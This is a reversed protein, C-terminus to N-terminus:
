APAVAFFERVAEKYRKDGVATLHDRGDLKVVRSGPIFKALNAASGVLTDDSGIVMLVPTRLKALFGLDVHPRAADMCAALAKLDNRNLEAFDRFLRGQESKVSNKEDALLADVIAKRRSTDGMSGGDGIGGLVVARLRESHSMLLQACIRGGMSYGMLLTRRIGLHDLLRVVDGAMADVGYAVSDHPKDSLGHGRCDLTIVRYRDALYRIWGPDGWNHQANSAFGHVLVVPDGQGAEEFHIRVGASDFYAMAR